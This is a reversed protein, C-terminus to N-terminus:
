TYSFQKTSVEKNSKNSLNLIVLCTQINTSRILNIKSDVDVFISKGKKNILSTEINKFKIRANSNNVFYIIKPHNFEGLFISNENKSHNILYIVFSEYIIKDSLLTESFIPFFLNYFNEYDIMSNDCIMVQPINTIKWTCRNIIKEELCESYQKPHLIEMM